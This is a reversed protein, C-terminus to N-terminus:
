AEEAKMRCSPCRNLLLEDTLHIQPFPWIESWWFGTQGECSSIPLSLRSNQSTHPFCFPRNSVLSLSLHSFQPSHCLPLFTWDGLTWDHVGLEASYWHTRAHSQPVLILFTLLSGHGKNGKREEQNKKRKANKCLQFILDKKKIKYM